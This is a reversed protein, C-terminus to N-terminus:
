SAWGVVLEHVHEGRFCVEIEDELEQIAVEFYDDLIAGEDKQRRVDLSPHCHGKTSQLEAMPIENEVPHTRDKRRLACGANLTFRRTASPIEYSKFGFLRSM